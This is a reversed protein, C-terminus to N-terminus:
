TNDILPAPGAMDDESRPEDDLFGRDYSTESAVDEDSSGGSVGAEDDLFSKALRRKVRTKKLPPDRVVIEERESELITDISRKPFPQVGADDEDGSDPEEVNFPLVVQSIAGPAEHEQLYDGLTSAGDDVVLAADEAVKKMMAPLSYRKAEKAAEVKSMGM